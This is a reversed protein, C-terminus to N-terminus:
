AAVAPSPAHSRSKRAIIAGAILLGVATATLSGVWGPKNTMMFLIAIDFGFSLSEFNWVKRDTALARLEAPVPGEPTNEAVEIVKAFHKDLVGGAIAGALVFLVLSVTVWGQRFSYENLTMYVGSLLVLLAAPMGMQSYRHLGELWERLSTVTATKAIRRGLLPMVFGYSLLVVAGAIHAFLALNYLEM